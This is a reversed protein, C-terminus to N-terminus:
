GVAIAMQISGHFALGPNSIAVGLPALRCLM